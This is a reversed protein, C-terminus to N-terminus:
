EAESEMLGYAHLFDALGKQYGVGVAKFHWHGGDKVLSGLQVSTANSDDDTLKFEAIVENTDPNIVHATCHSLQGFHHGRTLGEYIEVVCSVEDIGLTNQDLLSLDIDLKDDGISGGDKEHIVAGTAGKLNNYFVFCEDQPAVAKGGAHTLEFACVNVDMEHKKVPHAPDLDYTVEILVRTLGHDKSLNIGEGKKLQITM